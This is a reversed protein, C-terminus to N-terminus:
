LMRLRSVKEELLPYKNMQHFFLLLIHIMLQVKSIKRLM